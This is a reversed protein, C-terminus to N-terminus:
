YNWEVMYNNVIIIYKIENALIQSCCLQLMAIMLCGAKLFSYSLSEFAIWGRVDVTVELLKVVLKPNTQKLLFYKRYSFRM